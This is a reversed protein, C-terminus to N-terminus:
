ENGVEDSMILDLLTAMYEAHSWVLPSVSIRAGTHPNLQESLMLSTGIHRNVWRLSDEVIRKDGIEIGYQARWLATIYWWNGQTTDDARFYTDNEYRPLGPEDSNIVLNSRIADHTLRIEESGPEFLGFMFSGYFTAMDLTTDREYGGEDNPRLGKLLLKRESDFLHKHAARKIDDAGSRWRVASDSDDMGEALEAAAELAGYVVSTTYTSTIFHEEWLDYSPKPLGTSEDIFGVLFDAMKVAFSDYFEALLKPDDQAKYFQSFMFLVIATEDEQIPPATITGHVYPHWSSGLAGDAQYKHMLYGGSHLGRRCFEFFRRPEAVYGLRILPWLAYAGDRPWCYAYADRSYNLMSTDSSAIVAGRKDTHAKIMLASHTFAHRLEAPLRDSAARVPKLWEHWWAASSHLYSDLGNDQVNKHIYLAERMSTGAAIWYHLRTSDHAKLVTRFRITSDVRGHEVNSGALEGDEADRWTGERNEIGSLGIAHQDFPSGDGHTGSIVFARRGHYHLLADSDPLYQATDTNSRSDGIAFAQRLFIRIDRDTDAENVVHINRLLVSVETDVTDDFELLLKLTESRARTHGILAGQATWSSVQWSGDDLWSMVGNIWVGIKHVMNAGASHNELGVYPYYFDHVLGFENLGVLLEGNALVVPRAM